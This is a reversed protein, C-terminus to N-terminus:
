VTMDRFEVTYRLVIQAIAQAPTGAAANAWYICGLPTQTRSALWTEHQATKPWVFTKRIIGKNTGLSGPIFVAKPNTSIISFTESLNVNVDDFSLAIPPYDANQNIWIVEVKKVRYEGWITNFDTWDYASAVTSANIYSDSNGAGDAAIGITYSIVKRVVSEKKIVLVKAM